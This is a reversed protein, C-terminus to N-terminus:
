EKDPAPQADAEALLTHAQAAVHANKPDIGHHYIQWLISLARRRQPQLTDVLARLREVETLLDGADSAYIVENPSVLGSYQGRQKINDVQERIEALRKDSMPEM